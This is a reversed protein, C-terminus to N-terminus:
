NRPGFVMTSRALRTGNHGRAMTGKHTNRPDVNKERPYITPANKEDNLNGTATQM